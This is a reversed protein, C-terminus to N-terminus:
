VSSSSHPPILSVFLLIIIIMIHLFILSPLRGLLENIHPMLADKATGQAKLVKVEEGKAVIKARIDEVSSAMLYSATKTHYIFTFSKKLFHRGQPQKPIYNSASLFPSILFSPPCLSLFRPPACSSCVISISYIHLSSIFFSTKKTENRENPGHEEKIKM